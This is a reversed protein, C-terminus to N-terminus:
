SSSTIPALGVIAKCRSQKDIWFLQQKTSTLRDSVIKESSGLAKQPRKITQEMVQFKTQYTDSPRTLLKTSDSGTQDEYRAHAGGRFADTPTHLTNSDMFDEDPEEPISACSSAASRHTRSTFSTRHHYTQRTQPHVPPQTTAERVSPPAHHWVAAALMQELFSVNLQISTKIHIVDPLGQQINYRFRTERHRRPPYLRCKYDRWHQQAAKLYHHPAM